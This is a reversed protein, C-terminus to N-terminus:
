DLDAYDDYESTRKKPICTPCLAVVRDWSGILLCVLGALALAAGVIKLIFRALKM